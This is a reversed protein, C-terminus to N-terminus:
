PAVTPHVQEAKPIFWEERNYDIGAAQVAIGHVRRDVAVLAYPAYLPILPVQEHLIEQFRDYTKKRTAQDFTTRGEVM